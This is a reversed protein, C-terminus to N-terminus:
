NYDLMANNYEGEVYDSYNRIKKRGNYKEEVYDSYNQFKRGNCKEKYWWEVKNSYNQFNNRGVKETEKHDAYDYAEWAADCKKLVVEYKRL